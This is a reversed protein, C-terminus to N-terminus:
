QKVFYVEAAGEVGEEIASIGSGQGWFGGFFGIGGNEVVATAGGWWKGVVGDGEVQTWSTLATVNYLPGDFHTFVLYDAATQNWAAYLINQAFTLSSM